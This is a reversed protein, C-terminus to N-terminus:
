HEISLIVRHSAEEGDRRMCKTATLRGEDALSMSNMFPFGMSRRVTIRIRSPATKQGTKLIVRRTESFEVSDDADPIGDSGGMVEERRAVSRSCVAGEGKRQETLWCPMVSRVSFFRMAGPSYRVATSIMLPSSRMMVASHFDSSGWARRASTRIWPYWTGNSFFKQACRESSSLKGM